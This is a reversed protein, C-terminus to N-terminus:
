MSRLRAATSVRSICVPLVNIGLSFLRTLNCRMSLGDTDALRLGSVFCLAQRPLACSQLLAVTHMGPHAAGRVSCQFIKTLLLTAEQHLGTNGFSCPQIQAARSRRKWLFSDLPSKYEQMRGGCCGCGFTDLRTRTTCVLSKMLAERCPAGVPDICARDCHCVGYSHCCAASSSM